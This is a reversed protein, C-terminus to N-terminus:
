LHFFLILYLKNNPIIGDNLVSEPTLTRYALLVYDKNLKMKSLTKFDYIQSM